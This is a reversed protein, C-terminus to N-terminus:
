NNLGDMEDLVAQWHEASEIDKEELAAILLEQIRNRTM